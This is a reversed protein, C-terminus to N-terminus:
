KLKKICIINNLDRSSEYSNKSCRDLLSEVVESSLHLHEFCIIEPLYGADLANNVIEADMGETDVALIDITDIETEKALQSITKCPVEIIRIWENPDAPLSDGFRECMAQVWGNHFHKTLTEESSSTLGTAWRKNSFAITYLVLTRSNSGIASNICKVRDLKGFTRVLESFVGPNPEVLVARWGYNIAHHVFPDNEIGNNAGVVFITADSGRAKGFSSLAYNTEGAPSSIFRSRLKAIKINIKTLLKKIM